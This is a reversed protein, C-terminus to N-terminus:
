SLKAREKYAIDAISRWKTLNQLITRNVLDVPELPSKKYGTTRKTGGAGPGWMNTIKKEWGANDVVRQLRQLYFKRQWCDPM